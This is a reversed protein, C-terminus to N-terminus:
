VKDGDVGQILSIEPMNAQSDTKALIKERLDVGKFLLEILKSYSMEKEDGDVHKIQSYLDKLLFDLFEVPNIIKKM